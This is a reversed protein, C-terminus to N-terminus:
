NMRRGEEGEMRRRRDGDGSTKGVSRDRGEEDEMRTSYRRWLSGKVQRGEEGEM